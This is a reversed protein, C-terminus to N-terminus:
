RACGLSMRRIEESMAEHTNSLSDRSNLQRSCRQRREEFGSARDDTCHCPTLIFKVTLRNPSWYTLRVTSEQLSGKELITKIVEDENSTGFENELLAKSAGDYTGQVGQRNFSHSNTYSSQM